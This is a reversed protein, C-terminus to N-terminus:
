ALLYTSHSKFKLQVASNIAVINYAATDHM